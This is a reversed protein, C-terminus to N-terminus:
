CVRSPTEQAQARQAGQAASCCGGGEARAKDCVDKIPAKSQETVQKHIAPSLHPWLLKLITNIFLVQPRRPQLERPRSPASPGADPLPTM